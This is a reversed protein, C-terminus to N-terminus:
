GRLFDDIADAVAPVNALAAIADNNTAGEMFGSFVRLYNALGGDALDHQIRGLNRAHDINAQDEMDEPKVLHYNLPENEGGMRKVEIESLVRVLGPAATTAIAGITGIHLGVRRLKNAIARAEHLTVNYSAEPARWPGFSFQPM